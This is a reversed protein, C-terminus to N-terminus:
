YTFGYRKKEVENAFLVGVCSKVNFRDELTMYKLEENIHASAEKQEMDKIENWFKEWKFVNGEKYKEEIAAMQEKTKRVMELYNNKHYEPDRFFKENPNTEM